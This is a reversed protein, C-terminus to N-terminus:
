EKLKSFVKKVKYYYCWCGCVLLVIGFLIFEYDYVEEVLLKWDWKDRISDSWVRNNYHMFFSENKGHGDYLHPPLIGIDQKDEYLTYQHYLYESGTPTYAMTKYSHNEKMTLNKILHEFFKHKPVSMLFDHSFSSPDQRPIVVQYQRLIYMNRTCIIDMDLYIGGYHYLLFYRIVDSRQSIYPYTDYTELFWPYEKQIFERSQIESWYKYTYDPHIERVSRDPYKWPQPIDKWNIFTQHIIAPVVDINEPITDNVAINKVIYSKWVIDYYDRIVFRHYSYNLLIFIFILIVIFKFGPLRMCHLKSKM